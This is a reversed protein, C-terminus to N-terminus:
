NMHTKLTMFNRKLIQAMTKCRLFKPENHHAALEERLSIIKESTSLEEREMTDFLDKLIYRSHKIRRALRAREESQYQKVTQPNMLDMALKVIPFNEKYYQPLYMTKKGEYCQQDFDISRIRYQVDDFDHTIEVVYNYSRMDGLLTYFCRENFKIFEKALRTKNTKPHQIETKIFDDGPIGSIHEEILTNKDVFYNIHNPSLIDELELGLIRSVDTKKVYFYDYNDNFNNIIKVRFPNSNGFLCFDVRDVRLHEMVSINGETKLFSYILCLGKNIEKFDEQNYMVTVWLTNGIPFSDEYRLLQDYTIPLDKRRGYKKLYKTVNYNIPYCIKKLSIENM